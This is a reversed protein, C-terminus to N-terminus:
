ESFSNENGIKNNFTNLNQKIILGFSDGTQTMHGLNNLETWLNLDFQDFIWLFEFNLWQSKSDVCPGNGESAVFLRCNIYRNM